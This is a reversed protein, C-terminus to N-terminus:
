YIGSIWEMLDLQIKRTKQPNKWYNRPFIRGSQLREGIEITKKRKGVSDELSKTRFRPSVFFNGYKHLSKEVNQESDSSLQKREPNWGSLGLFLVM